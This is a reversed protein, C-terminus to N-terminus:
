DALGVDNSDIEIDAAKMFIWNQPSKWQSPHVLCIWFKESCSHGDTQRRDFIPLCWLLLYIGRKWLLERLFPLPAQSIRDDTLFWAEDRYISDLHPHSSALAITSDDHVLNGRARKPRPVAAATHASKQFWNSCGAISSWYTVKKKHKISSLLESDSNGTCAPYLSAWIHQPCFVCSLLLAICDM